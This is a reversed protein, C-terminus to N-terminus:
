GIKAHIRRFSCQIGFAALQSEALRLPEDLFFLFLPVIEPSFQM